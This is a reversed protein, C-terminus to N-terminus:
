LILKQGQRAFLTNPFLAKAQQEESRLAADTHDPSHHSIILHTAGSEKALRCGYNWSSHGWGVHAPYEKPTFTGDYILLDCGRVWDAIPEEGHEYDCAFCIRHGGVSLCILVADDPHNAFIFDASCGYELPFREPPTIACMEGFRPTYPWFPPQMFRVLTEDGFWSGFNSIFRVPVGEPFVEYGLLGMVHDYHMHTFLVDIKRCGEFLPGANYLGSGCDIVMAYDDVRVVYCITDGGFEEFQAGSVPRTGRAGCVFLEMKKNMLLSGIPKM